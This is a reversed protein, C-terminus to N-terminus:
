INDQSRLAFAPRNHHVLLQRLEVPRAGTIEDVIRGNRYVRFTPLRRIGQRTAFAGEHKGVDFKAFRVTKFITTLKKLETHMVKCPGCWDTYYDVVVVDNGAEALFPHFTEPTLDHVPAAMIPTVAPLVSGRPPAAPFQPSAAAPLPGDDSDMTHLPLVGELERKGLPMLGKPLEQRSSPSTRSASLSRALQETAVAAVAFSALRPTSRRVHPRYVAAPRGSTSCSASTCTMGTSMRPAHPGLM